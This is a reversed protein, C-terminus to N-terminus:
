GTSTQELTTGSYFTLAGPLNQFGSVHRDTAYGQARFCLGVMPVQELVIQQLETYIAHRKADDFEARGAALLEDIKPIDLGFSRVYSVALNGALFPTLGDPDNYESASGMVAMEYQGRNGLTVRTPWDPLVLEAQIGIEALHQQVVAATDNHMGYQATSLLKCTFGSGVGAAALLSKAKAPDYPWGHALTADYFATGETLPVGEIPTGRGFFAAKIIEERRIAHAIAQRVRADDFPKVKANFTLYMFPGPTTQLSLKPDAEITPMSQWPVYEILDVDGAQLAAVRLNEDAYAIMRVTKLKPLGPRYFKDFAKFELAVGREEHTMVFPGAGIGLPNDKTSDRALIPLFYSALLYPLTAIPEKTTLRVTKPDPTEIRTIRQMEARLYATSKGGAVQEITWAVDASTVPAGNQFVADRLHLVWAGDEAHDWAEALEGRLMGDPGYGLLGRHFMLKATAAATGANAWPAMTPPYSSLGLVLRGPTTAARAPIRLFPLAAGAALLSRRPTKM